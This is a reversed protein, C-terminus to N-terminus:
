PMPSSNAVGTHEKPARKTHAAREEILAALSRGIALGAAAVLRRHVDDFANPATSYFSIVGAPHGNSIVPVALASRLASHDRMAEDLDLRADSNVVIQGTAAVWGSLREGLPIPTTPVLVIDHGAEYVAVISDHARDYEYLVLTSAPLRTKFQTWLVEGLESMSSPVGLAQGFEFFTQLDLDDHHEEGARLPTLIASPGHSVSSPEPVLTGPSGHLSFFADVVDPDYMIGRRDTLIQLAERDEMRPRYPRDSTLADFCDVVALIRSGIPIRDGAIGDPYGSGDWNEHHYRVIPAVAFPFGIVSLIDAGISAHRKMIEYEAPTLRGPKNLIHEPIALKGVDHLLSAAKIAQIEAEDDVGLARALHVARDQVRRTHDHTVEDKADVAHALAEIAGVYVRNVKALHDIQDTARGLAHRFTIYLIVPLPVILLLVDFRNLRKLVLLLMAGFVGGFYSVWLALFHERWISVVPLKREFAVATAVIGTNLGFDIIGFLTLLGLLGLAALPGELLLRNGALAFFVFAAMWTAIAATAMNFLVRHVTRTSFAMRYSLVLADLAATAAGASPGFLLAAAMIFTDSISFSIPMSPIRLTAWGSLVTLAPLILWQLGAPHEILDVGAHALIATGAVIVGLVYARARGDLERPNDSASSM